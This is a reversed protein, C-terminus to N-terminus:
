RRSLSDDLAGMLDDLADLGSKTGRLADEASGIVVHAAAGDYGAHTLLDRTEIEAFSIQWPYKLGDINLFVVVTPVGVQRALLIHERTQPMPGDTASVVLIAADQEVTDMATKLLNGEADFDYISYRADATEVEAVLADITPESPDAPDVYILNLSVDQIAVAAATLTTKGHDVHGITGVNVHPKNREFVEKAAFTTSASSLAVATLLILLLSKM